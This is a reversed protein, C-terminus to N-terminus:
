EETYNTTYSWTIQQGENVPYVGASRDLSKGDVSVEWGSFPGHDMEYINAIGQVYALSNSGTVDIQINKQKTIRTTVDLVTDGPKWEVKTASLITGKVDPAVITITVTQKPETPKEPEEKENNDSDETTDDKKDVSDGVPPEAENTDKPESPADNNSEAPEEQEEKEPQDAETIKEEQFNIKDDKKELTMEREEVLSALNKDEEQMQPNVEDKACGVSLFVVFILM